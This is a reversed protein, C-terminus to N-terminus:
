KVVIKKRNVIYVGKPLNAVASSDASNMVHTGDLKYVSYTGDGNSVAIGSIATTSDTSEEVVTTDVATTDSETTETSDASEEAEAIIYTFEMLDTFAVSTSFMDEGVNFSFAMAPCVLKYTDPENVTITDPISLTFITSTGSYETTADDTTGQWVYVTDTGARLLYPTPNFSFTMDAREEFTLVFDRLSDVVSSDAPEITYSGVDASGVNYYYRMAATVNGGEFNNANAVSDGIAGEVFYISYQAYDTITDALTVLISKGEGDDVSTLTCTCVLSPRTSSHDYALAWADFGDPDNPNAYVPEDFTLTIATLSILRDGNTDSTPTPTIVTPELTTTLEPTNSATAPQTLVIACAALVGLFASLRKM